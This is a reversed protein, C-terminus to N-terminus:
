VSLTPAANEYKRTVAAKMMDRKSRFGDLIATASNYNEEAWEQSNYWQAYDPYTRITTKAMAESPKKWGDPKDEPTLLNLLLKDRWIRYSREVSEWVRKCQAAMRGWHMIQASILQVQSQLNYEQIVLEEIVARVSVRIWPQISGDTNVQFIDFDNLCQLRQLIADHEPM